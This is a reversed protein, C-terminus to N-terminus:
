ITVADPATMPWPTTTTAGDSMTLTMPSSAAATLLRPDIVDDSCGGYALNEPLTIATAGTDFTSFYSSSVVRTMTEATSLSPVRM